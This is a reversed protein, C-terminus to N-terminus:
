LGLYPIREILPIIKPGIQYSWKRLGGWFIGVIALVASLFVLSDLWPALDPLLTLGVFIAIALLGLALHSCIWGALVQDVQVFGQESSGHPKDLRYISSLEDGHVKAYVGRRLTTFCRLATLLSYSALVVFWWVFLFSAGAFLIAWFGLLLDLFCERDNAQRITRKFIGEKPKAERGWGYYYRIQKYDILCTAILLTVSIVQCWPLPIDRWAYGFSAARGAPRQWLLVSVATGLAGFQFGNAVSSNLYPVEAFNKYHKLRCSFLEPVWSKGLSPQDCFRSRRDTADTSRSPSSLGEQGADPREPGLTDPKGRLQNMLSRISQAAPWAWNVPTIM